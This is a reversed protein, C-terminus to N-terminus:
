HVGAGVGANDSSKAATTARLRWCDMSYLSRARVIPLMFFQRLLRARAPPDKHIAGRM